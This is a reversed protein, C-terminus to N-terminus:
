KKPQNKYYALSYEIAFVENANLGVFAFKNKQPLDFVMDLKTLDLDEKLETLLELLSRDRIKFQDKHNKFYIHKKSM